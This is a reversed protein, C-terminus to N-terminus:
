VEEALGDITVRGPGWVKGLFTSTVLESPKREATYM